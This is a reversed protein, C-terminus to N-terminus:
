PAKRNSHLDIHGRIKYYKDLRWFINWGNPEDDDCVIIRDAQELIENQQKLYRWFAALVAAAFVPFSALMYIAAHHTGSRILLASIGAFLLMYLVIAQFLFRNNRDAFIKM